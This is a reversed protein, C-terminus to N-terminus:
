STKCCPPDNDLIALTRGRPLSECRLRFSHPAFHQATCFAGASTIKQCNVAASTVRRQCSSSRKSRGEHPEAQGSSLRCLVACFAPLQSRSSVAIPGMPAFHRFQEVRRSRRGRTSDILSRTASHHMLGIAHQAVDEGRRTGATPHGEGLVPVRPWVGQGEAHAQQPRDVRWHVLAQLCPSLPSLACNQRCVLM